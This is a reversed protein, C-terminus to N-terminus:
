VQRSAERPTVNFDVTKNSTDNSTRADILGSNRQHTVREINSLGNNQESMSFNGNNNPTYVYNSRIWSSGKVLMTIQFEKLQQTNANHNVSVSLLFGDIIQGSIIMKLQMGNEICKRGSLYDEYAVMFEQYYPYEKTDLFVGSFRYMNPTNGFLFVNWKAGFNMHVKTIQDHIEAMGTVSFNNFVGYYDNRKDLKLIPIKGNPREPFGSVESATSESILTSVTSSLNTLYDVSYTSTDYDQTSNQFLVITAVSDGHERTGRAVPRLNPYDDERRNFSNPFPM